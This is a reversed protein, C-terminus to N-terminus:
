YGEYIASPGNVIDVINYGRIQQGCSCRLNKSSFFFRSNYLKLNSMRKLM